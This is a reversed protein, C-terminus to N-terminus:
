ESLSNIWPLEEVKTEPIVPNRANNIWEENLTEYNQFDSGLYDRIWQIVTSETLSNYDVFNAADINETNLQINGSSFYYIVGDTSHLKFYVQVVIGTNDNKQVLKRIKWDHTIAM